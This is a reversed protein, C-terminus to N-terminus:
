VLYDKSVICTDLKNLMTGISQEKLKAIKIQEQIANIGGFKENILEVASRYYELKKEIEHTEKHAKIIAQKQEEITDKLQEIESLYEGVRGSGEVLKKEAIEKCEQALKERKQAEKLEEQAQKKEKLLKSLQESIEAKQEQATKLRSEAESMKVELDKKAAQLQAELGSITDKLGQNQRAKELEGTVDQLRQELQTAMEAYEQKQKAVEHTEAQLKQVTQQKSILDADLQNMQEKHKQLNTIQAELAQERTKLLSETTQIQSDKGELQDLMETLKIKYTKIQQAM